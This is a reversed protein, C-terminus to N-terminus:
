PVVVEGVETPCVWYCLKDLWRFYGINNLVKVKLLQLGVLWDWDLGGLGLAVDLLEVWWSRWLGWLLSIDGILQLCVLGHSDLNLALGIGTGCNLSLMVPELLWLLLNGLV